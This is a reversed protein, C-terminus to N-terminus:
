AAEAFPPFQIMEASVTEPCDAIGRWNRVLIFNPCDRTAGVISRLSDHEKDLLPRALEGSASGNSLASDLATANRIGYKRLLDRLPDTQTEQNKSGGGPNGEKYEAGLYTLLIAQDVWDIIRHPPIKTNLMLEVLDATALNPVSEIDEEELRLQAWCSLGDIADLPQSATLNPLVAQFPPFKKLAVTVLQWVVIPFAGIAFSAVLVAPAKEDIEYGSVAFTRM